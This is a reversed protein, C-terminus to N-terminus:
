TPAVLGEVAALATGAHRRASFDAKLAHRIIGDRDIVFTARGDLLGLLKNVGYAARVEGEPDSLLRFGLGHKAAFGAHTQPPDRSVGLVVAGADEFEARADRFACAERTCLPTDDKPYFYLVVSSQGRFDALSVLRGDQDALTFDPAREGVQRM